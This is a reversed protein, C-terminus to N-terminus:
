EGKRKRLSRKIRLTDRFVTFIQKISIKSRSNSQKSRSYELEIPLEIIKCGKSAAIALVEIDFAYGETNLSACIPKIVESKFLKIGTQTDKLNLHFLLKLFIYYCFSMIRRPLPYHLKSKKHMKSGIAIDADQELLEKIFYRLMTPSLELDSDLFAIYKAHAYATGQCIAYGKGHNEEYTIYTIHSDKECADKMGDLTNDKSGDNVALIQYNKVFKSVTESTLQLNASINQAENYTPMVVCLYFQQDANYNSATIINNNDLTEM